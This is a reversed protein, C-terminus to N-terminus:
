LNQNLREHDAAGALYMTRYRLSELENCADDLELYRKWATEDITECLVKEADAKRKLLAHYEADAGLEEKFIYPERQSYCELMKKKDM